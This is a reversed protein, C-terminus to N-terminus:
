VVSAARTAHHPAGNAILDFMRDLLKRRRAATSPWRRRIATRELRLESGSVGTIPTTGGSGGFIEGGGALSPTTNPTNEVHNESMMRDKRLSALSANANLCWNIARNTNLSWPKGFHEAM